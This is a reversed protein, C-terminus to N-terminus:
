NSLKISVNGAKVETKQDDIRISTSGGNEKSDSSIASNVNSKTNQHPYQEARGALLSVFRIDTRILEFNPDVILAEKNTLGADIAITLYYLAKNPDGLNSFAQASALAFDAQYPGAKKAYTESLAAADKFKGIEINHQVSDLAQPTTQPSIISALRERVQDCASLSTGLFLILLFKASLNAQM